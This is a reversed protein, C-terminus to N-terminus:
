IKGFQWLFQCFKTMQGRIPHILTKNVEGIGCWGIEKKHM